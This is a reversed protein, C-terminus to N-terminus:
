RTHAITFRNCITWLTKLVLLSDATKEALNSICELKYHYNVESDDDNVKSPCQTM